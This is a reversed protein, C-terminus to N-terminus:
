RHNLAIADYDNKVRQKKRKKNIKIVTPSQNSRFLFRSTFSTAFPKIGHQVAKADEQYVKKTIVM